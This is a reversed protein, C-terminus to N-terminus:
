GGALGEDLAVEPLRLAADAALGDVALGLDHVPLRRRELDELRRRRVAGLAVLGAVDLLEDVDLRRELAAGRPELLRGRGVRVDDLVGLRVAVGVVHRAGRGLVAREGLVHAAQLALPEPGPPAGRLEVLEDLPRLCKSARGPSPSRCWRTEQSF